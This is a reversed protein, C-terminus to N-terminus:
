VCGYCCYLVSPICGVERIDSASFHRPGEDELLLAPTEYISSLPLFSTFSDFSDRNSLSDIDQVSSFDYLPEEYIKPPPQKKFSKNVTAYM